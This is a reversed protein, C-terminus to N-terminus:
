VFDEYRFYWCLCELSMNFYKIQSVYRAATAQSDSSAAVHVHAPCKIVSTRRHRATVRSNVPLVLPVM